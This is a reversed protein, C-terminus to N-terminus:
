HPNPFAPKQSSPYYPHPFPPLIAARTKSQSGASNYSIFIAPKEKPELLFISHFAILDGSHGTFHLGNRWTQYFGMCMAPLSDSAGFQKTWMADLTEAKIIRHGDWEGGNLLAQAFRGMVSATSSM